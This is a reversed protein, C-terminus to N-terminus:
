IKIAPIEAWHTANPYMMRHGDPGPMFDVWGRKERTVMVPFSLPVMEHHFLAYVLFGIGPLREDVPIFDIEVKIHDM